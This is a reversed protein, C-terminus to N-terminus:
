QFRLVFPNESNSDMISEKFKPIANLFRMANGYNSVDNSIQIEMEYARMCAETKLAELASDNGLSQKEDGDFEQFRTGNEKKVYTVYHRSDVPDSHVM